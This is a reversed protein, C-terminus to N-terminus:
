SNSKFPRQQGYQEAKQVLNAEDPNASKPSDPQHFRKLSLYDLLLSSERLALFIRRQFSLSTPLESNHPTVQFGLDRFLLLSRWMHPADTILLIRRAQPKLIAATFIANEKTTLSCNEGDLVQNPIGIDKLLQIIEAADGRGSVFIVPSKKFRWLEAAVDVRQRRFPEGRGLIVIADAVKGSDTPLFLGQFVVVVFMLALTAILGVLWLIKAKTLRRRWRRNQIVWALGFVALIVVLLLLKNLSQFQEFNIALPFTLQRPCSTSDFM